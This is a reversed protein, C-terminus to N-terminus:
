RKEFIAVFGDGGGVTFEDFAGRTVPFDRRKAVGAAVV